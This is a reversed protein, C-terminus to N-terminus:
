KHFGLDAPNYDGSIHRIEGGNQVFHYRANATLEILDITDEPLNTANYRGLSWYDIILKSDGMVLTYGMKKAIDLALYMGFLEGFNNTKNTLTINGFENIKYGFKKFLETKNLLSNKNKDSVRVETGIGRGTGADFYIANELKKIIEKKIQTKKTYQAGNELWTKAESETSFKKYRANTHATLNKCQEWTKVIGCKGDIYYAYFKAM